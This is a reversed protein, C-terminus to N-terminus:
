HKKGVGFCICRLSDPVFGKVINFSNLLTLISLNKVRFKPNASNMSILTHEWTDAEDRVATIEDLLAYKVCSGRSARVYVGPHLCGSCIFYGDYQVIGQIPARAASDVCCCLAFIKFRRAMSNIICLINDIM